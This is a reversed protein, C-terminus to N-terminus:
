APAGRQPCLPPAARRCDASPRHAANPPLPEGELLAALVGEAALDAVLDKAAELIGWHATGRSKQTALQARCRRRGKHAAPV